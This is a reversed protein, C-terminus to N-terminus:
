ARSRVSRDSPITFLSSEEHDDIEELGHVASLVLMEFASAGGVFAQLFLEGEPTTRHLQYAIILGAYGVVLPLDIM